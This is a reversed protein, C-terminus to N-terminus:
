REIRIRADVAVVDKETGLLPNIDMEFIEPAMRCLASVRRIADAFLTRNVGEQGRVGQILKHCRLSDIMHEAETKSVPSLGVSVDKLVEVFIGGLGCLITHGFAGERKAGIFLERGSLQSQLLVATTDKIQMMDRFVTQLLSDNDINLRVGGVDSKHLPGVVKMVLPYGIYRAAKLAAKETTVTEEKAHALGAADLLKRVQEPPLYGNPAQDIVERIRERDVPPLEIEEPQPEPTDMVRVLAAGFVVEDPFYIRGKKQFEAIERTVNLTSPFIPYVPIPCQDMKQDLLDYVDQVSNLGPSGFIVPMGHMQPCEKGVFDMIQGLQAATGTALFDIPNAASSGLYLKKLLEDAKEKPIQPINIGNSSLIDTLM